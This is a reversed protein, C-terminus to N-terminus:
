KGKAREREREKEKEKEKERAHYVARTSRSGGLKPGRGGEKREGEKEKEKAKAAQAGSPHRRGAAQADLYEKRFEEAMKADADTIAAEDGGQEGAKRDKAGHGAGEAQRKEAAAIDMRNERLMEEM